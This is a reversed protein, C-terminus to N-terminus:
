AVKQLVAYISLTALLLLVTAFLASRWGGGPSLWRVLILTAGLLIWGFWFLMLTADQLTPALTEQPRGQLISDLFSQNKAEAESKYRKLDDELQKKKKILSQTSADLNTRDSGSALNLINTHTIILDDYQAKSSTYSDIFKNQLYAFNTEVSTLDGDKLCQQVYQPFTLAGLQTGNLCVANPDATASFGEYQAYM